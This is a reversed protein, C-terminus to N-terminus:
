PLLVFMYIALLTSCLSAKTVPPSLVRIGIILEYIQHNSLLIPSMFMSGSSFRAIVFSFSSNTSRTWDLHFVTCVCVGYVCSFIHIFMPGGDCKTAEAKVYRHTRKSKIRGIRAEKGIDICM